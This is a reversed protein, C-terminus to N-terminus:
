NENVQSLKKFEFDLNENKLWIKLALLDYIPLIKRNDAIVSDNFFYKVIKQKDIMRSFEDDLLLSDMLYKKRTMFDNVGMPSMDAKSTKNLITPSVYGKMADRFYARDYGDKLKYSSDVSLCFEVIRKSFFPMLTTIERASRTEYVHSFTMEWINSNITNVHSTKPDFYKGRDYGFNENILKYINKPHLRKNLRLLNLEEYLFNKKLNRYPELMKPSIFTKLFFTKFADLNNTKKGMVLCAKKYASFFSNFRFSRALQSLEDYGHSVVVDGDLGDFIYKSGSIKAKQLIPDMVYLNSNYLPMDLKNEYKLLFTFPGTNKLNIFTHNIKKENIIEKVYADENSTSLNIDPSSFISSYSKLNINKDSLLSTISTSDLGGSMISSYECAEQDFNEITERFIESFQDVCDYYNKFKNSKATLEYYKELIFNFKNDLKLTNAKKLKFVNEYFTIEPTSVLTCLYDYVRKYNLSKKFFSLNKFAKIESSILFINSQQFSYYLPNIGFHDTIAFIAKTHMDYIIVSFQGELEEVFNAGNKKFLYLLLENKTLKHDLNYKSIIKKRNTLFCESIVINRNTRLMPNKKDPNNSILIVSEDSYISSKSTDFLNTQALIEGKFKASSNNKTKLAFLSIM